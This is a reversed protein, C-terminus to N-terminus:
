GSVIEIGSLYKNTVYFLFMAFAIGLLSLIIISNNTKLWIKTIKKRYEPM